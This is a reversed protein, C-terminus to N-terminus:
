ESGRMAFRSGDTNMFRADGLVATIEFQSMETEVTEPVGNLGFTQRLEDLSAEATARRQEEAAGLEEPLSEEDTYTRAAGDSEVYLNGLADDVRKRTIVSSFGFCDCVQRVQQCIFAPQFFALGPRDDGSLREIIYDFVEDTFTLQCSSAAREFTRRFEQPDPGMMHVKYPIRRLFAPDMLDSPAINTSFIVMEDFPVSFSKGTKLKLYDVRNELPIIWRNLLDGPAVRQRGLDDILFVGNLAKMHLPADYTKSDSDYRLELMDLTLEGGAVAVPRKCIMWRADFGDVQLTRKDALAGLAESPDTSQEAFPQHLREDYVKIIQADVELAFPVYVPQCFLSAVIRGISTKGNGPPGYLLITQGANVAPLLQRVYRDNVVLNQLGAQLAKVDLRERRISQRMIQAQYSALSVPAPGLYQNQEFAATADVRGQDSLGYRMYKVVGSTTSGLVHLLRQGIAEDILEQVVSHPLKMRLSLDPLLECSEVRMFKLMLNLLNGRSTGTEALSRPMAPTEDLVRAIADNSVLGLAVLCDGLRGGRLRQRELGAAIDAASAIGRAVLVKGLRM